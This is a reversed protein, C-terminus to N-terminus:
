IRRLLVLVLLLGGGALLLTTPDIGGLPGTGGGTARYRTADDRANQGGEFAQADKVIDLQDRFLDYDAWREFTQLGRDWIRDWWPANNTDQTAM